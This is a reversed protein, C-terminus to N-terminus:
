YLGMQRAAWLDPHEKEFWEWYEWLNNYPLNNGHCLLHLLSEPLLPLENLDNNYCELIVLGKHTKIEKLSNNNCYLYELESLEPLENLNNEGCSLSILNPPLKPLKTLKNNYCCLRKVDLLKSLDPLKTLALDNLYLETGDESLYNEFDFNNQEYTKLHKM